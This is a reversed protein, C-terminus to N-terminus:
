RAAAAGHGRVTRDWTAMWEQGHQTILNWDVDAPKLEKLVDRAWQPLREPPLDTRAPLRFADRAALEQGEVSGVFEIFAKAQEPHPAGKVLGISDDIVPAGSKAFRYGLPAGRKAQWLMDTLEWVTITGEQRKLKEMMLVPNQVYEKTQADFRRLWDWGRDPSGTEQVSKALIMGFLTRMTGSALPDRILIKGKWRPDLLDDWDAPAEERKVAASNYALVPATRYSALYLDHPDRSGPPVADAWQPRYPALLGDAAGRAFITQPGGFWVDAQANAAESRIRDYVEQSGMDLWRVDVEPHRAEFAKEMLALLDSGHPSYVTLHTRGDGCSAALLAVLAPVVRLLSRLRNM